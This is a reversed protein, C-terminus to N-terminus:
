NYGGTDTGTRLLSTAGTDISGGDGSALAAADLIKVAYTGAVPTPASSVRTVSSPGATLAAPAANEEGYSADGAGLAARVKAVKSSNALATFTLVPETSAESGTRSSSAVSLDVDTAQVQMYNTALVNSPLIVLVGVDVAVTADGSTGNVGCVVMFTDSAVGDTVATM